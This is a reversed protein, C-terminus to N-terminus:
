GPAVTQPEATVTSAWGPSLQISWTAASIISGPSTTTTASVVSLSSPM